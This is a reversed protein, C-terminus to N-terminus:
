EVLRIRTVPENPKSDLIYTKMKPLIEEMTQLLLRERTIEPAKTYEELIALFRDAKGRARNVLSLRYGEAEQVIEEARGRAQPLISNRYAVAQDRLREQDKKASAVDKFADLVALPPDVAQLDSAVIIVGCGYADLRQQALLSTQTQMAGKAITLADDVSLSGLLDVLIALVTTRVLEDPDDVGTLYQAADGIKYQVVMTVKLINEDGTLMDSERSRSIAALDGMAIAEADKPDLGVTVRRVETTTPTDVRDIPWPFAYGIGPTVNRRVIKGFRRVVGREDPGVVYIGLAAYGALALVVLVGVVRRVVGRASPKDGRNSSAPNTDAPTM